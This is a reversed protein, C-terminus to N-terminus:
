NSSSLTLAIPFDAVTEPKATTPTQRGKTIEKVRDSIYYDLMNISIRGSHKFDARGSLGEVVAKTFAGNSWAPNELSYQSGSSAAFVVAGNEASALENIIGTIDLVAKRTGMVNASHCADVFFLTKGALATVTSRLDFSSLGTRKLSDVDANHPLFYFQGNPNNVGHGSLFVAAVDKSTTQKTIWDLGDLIADKTALENTLVKTVVDRYMLGRQKQMVRAFDRADKASYGLDLEEHAYKSVGIALVYLIPRIVSEQLRAGKWRIRITAPSSVGNANEALVSVESDWSPIPITLYAPVRGEQTIVAVGKGAELPRGDVLARVRTIPSGLPTRVKFHVDLLNGEAAVQDPPSTIEVVPPLIAAVSSAPKNRGLEANALRVAEGEDLTALVSAVIDPRYYTDRFRSAPFFDAAEAAGRNVHWGILDEAGPSCDYYGSPTWVVWRQRDAHPFFALLERGDSMRYWRITGDAFAAVAVSGNGSINVDLVASPGVNKWIQSGFRDFLYLAWTAGLLVRDGAPGVAASLSMEYKRLALPNGNLKPAFSDKWDVVKLTGVAAQPEGLRPDPAPAAELRREGLSFRTPSSDFPHYGFEVVSGDRSVRFKENWDRYDAIASPKFLKRRGLGDIRGITQTSGFFLDGDPLSELDSIESKGEDVPLDRHDGAGGEAWARIQTSNKLYFRGAAFLTRGDAAWAVYPLAADVGRVDPNVLPALTKASLVAVVPKEEASECGYALKEGDPSFAIGIPVLLSAGVKTKLLLRLKNDGRGGLQYLRVYGDFSTSALQGNRSFTLCHSAGAYNHDEGVEAFTQADFLRVGNDAGLAAALYRGDPSFALFHIVNPLAGIRFRMRGTERDFIYISGAGAWGFGTYGGAAITRGDLSVAVAALKGDEGEDIPPRIVRLQEGSSLDWVRLSKDPSVTVFQRAAVSVVVRSISSTHMAAEVRLMPQTPPGEGRLVFAVLAALFCSNPTM